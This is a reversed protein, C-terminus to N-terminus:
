SNSINREFPKIVLMYDGIIALVNLPLPQDQKVEIRGDFDWGLNTVRWDLSSLPVSADMPDTSKRFEVREGNIKVGISDNLRVVISNWRKRQQRRRARM